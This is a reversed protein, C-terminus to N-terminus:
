ASPDDAAMLLAGTAALHGAERCLAAVTAFQELADSRCILDQAQELRALLPPLLSEATTAPSLLPPTDSL